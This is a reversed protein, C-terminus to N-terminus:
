ISLAVERPTLARYHELAQRALRPWGGAAHVLACGAEGLQRSQAPDALLRHLAAAVAAVDGPDVLLGTGGAVVAERCGAGDSALVPAGCAAAELYVLGFGESDLLGDMERVEPTLAFVDCATYLLALETRAVADVLHVRKTLRLRRLGALLSATEPGRGVVMWHVPETLTALAEALVLHGKRAVLRGVTLVVPRDLPLGYCLRTEERTGPRPRFVDLDCGATVVTTPRRVDWRELLAATHGSVALLHDCANLGDVVWRRTDVGPTHQWPATLDNGHVTALTPIRDPVVGRYVAECASGLHVVDPAYGNIVSGLDAAARAWERPSHPTTLDPVVYQRVRPDSPRSLGNSTVIAVQAHDALATTLRDVYVPVGTTQPHFTGAIWLCRV